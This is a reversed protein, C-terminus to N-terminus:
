VKAETISTLPGHAESPTWNRGDGAGGGAMFALSANYSNVDLCLLGSTYKCCSWPATRHPFVGSTLVTCKKFCVGHSFEENALCRGLPHPCGGGMLDGSVSLGGCIRLASTMKINGLDCASTKCCEFPSLRYPLDGTLISCKKYCLSGLQEEDRACANGDTTNENPLVHGELHKASFKRLLEVKYKELSELVEKETMDESENGAHLTGNLKMKYAKLEKLLEDKYKDNADRMMEEKKENLEELKHYAEGMVSLGTIVGMIQLNTSELADGKQLTRTRGHWPSSAIVAASGLAGAVLLAKVIVHPRPSSGLLSCRGPSAPRGDYDSSSELDSTLIGGDFSEVLAPGAM